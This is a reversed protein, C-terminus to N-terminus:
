GGPRNFLVSFQGQTPLTRKTHDSFKLLIVLNNLTGKTILGLKRSQQYKMRREKGPARPSVLGKKLNYEQPTEEGVKVNTPKVEGKEDEDAYVIWDDDDRRIVTYGDEDEFHHDGTKGVVKLTVVSGDPQKEQFPHPSADIALSVPLFSIVFLLLNHFTKM